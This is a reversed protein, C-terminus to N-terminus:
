ERQSSHSDVVIYDGLLVSEKKTKAESGPRSKGVARHQCRIM